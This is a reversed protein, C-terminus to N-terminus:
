SWSTSVNARLKGGPDDFRFVYLDSLVHPGISGGAVLTFSGELGSFVGTGQRIPGIGGFALTPVPLGRLPKRFQRGEVTDGAFTGIARGEQDFFTFAGEVTQYPIPSESTGPAPDQLDFLVTSTAVGVTPGITWKSQLGRSGEGFDLSVLRLVETVNIGLIQGAPSKHWTTPHNPDVSAYCTFFTSDSELDPIPELKPLDSTTIFNGAPDEIRILIQLAFDDPPTLTGNMVYTGQVGRLKGIGETVAGVAVIQLHDGATTPFTRGTGFSHFGDEGQRGLKFDADMMAFRQSRSPNLRIPPPERSPLAWYDDPIVLFRLSHKAFSEGIINTAQLGQDSTPVKATIALGHLMGSVYTGIVSGSDGSAPIPMNPQRPDPMSLVDFYGAQDLLHQVYKPDIGPPADSPQEPLSPKDDMYIGRSLTKWVANQWLPLPFKIYVTHALNM